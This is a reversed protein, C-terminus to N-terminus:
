QKHKREEKCCCSSSSYIHRCFFFSIGYLGAIGIVGYIVRALFSEGFLDQVLNYQFFGWLGWNLAGVVILFLILFRFLKM